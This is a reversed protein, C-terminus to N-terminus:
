LKGGKWADELKRRVDDKDEIELARTWASLAEQDRGLSRLIDGCHDWMVSDPEHGEAFGLAKQMAAYAEDFRNQKYLVWALSDWIYDAEPEKELAKRILEESRALDRGEEALSYGVFNLVDAKEPDDKLLSEMLELAKAKDGLYETMVAESFRYDPNEPALALLGRIIELAEGYRKLGTLLRYQMEQFVTKEPYLRASESAIAVAEDIRDEESLEIIRLQQSSAHYESKENMGALIPLIRDKEIGTEFRIAARFYPSDGEFEHLVAFMDMFEVAQKKQGIELLEECLHGAAELPKAVDKLLGFAEQANGAKLLLGAYAHLAANSEPNEDFIRKFHRVAEAYNGANEALLALDGYAPMFDPDKEICQKLYAAAQRSDGNEVACRAMMYYADADLLEEPLRRLAESAEKHRGAKLFLRAEQMFISSDEPHDSHFDELIRVAKDADGDRQFTIESLLMHSPADDALKDMYRAVFSLAEDWCNQRMIWDGVEYVVSPAFDGALFADAHAITQGVDYSRMAAQMALFEFLLDAGPSPSIRRMEASNLGLGPAAAALDIGARGVAKGATGCASLLVCALAAGLLKEANITM